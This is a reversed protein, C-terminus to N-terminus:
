LDRYIHFEGDKLYKLVPLRHFMLRSFNDVIQVSELYSNHTM